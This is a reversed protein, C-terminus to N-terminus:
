QVLQLMDIEIKHRFGLAEPIKRSRFHADDVRYMPVVDNHICWDCLASVAGKGLGRHRYDPHTLVGIDAIVDMWYRHSAYSVMREGDFVGFIVPDPEDIYIEADDLDEESCAEYLALLTDNEEEAHVRRATFDGGVSFPVFDRPDLYTILFLGDRSVRGEDELLSRVGVGGDTMLGPSLGLAEISSLAIRLVVLEGIHYSYFRSPDELKGDEFVLVGSQTFAAPDCEFRGAWFRYIIEQLTDGIIL